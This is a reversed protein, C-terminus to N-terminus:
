RLYPPLNDWFTRFRIGDAVFLLVRKAPGKESVPIAPLGQIIPSHFNADMVGWLMILHMLFGWFGLFYDAKYKRQILHMINSKMM